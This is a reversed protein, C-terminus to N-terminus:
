AAALEQIHRQVIAGHRQQMWLGGIKEEVARPRHRQAVRVRVQRRIVLEAGSGALNENGDAVVALEAFQALQHAPRLHGGVRAEPVVGVPQGVPGRQGGSQLAHQGFLVTLNDGVPQQAVAHGGARHQRHILGHGRRVGRCPSHHRLKLAVPAEARRDLKGARGAAGPACRRPKGLVARFHQGLV